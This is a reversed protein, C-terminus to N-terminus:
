CICTLVNLLFYSVSNVLLYAIFFSAIEFKELENKYLYFIIWQISANILSGMIVEFYTIVGLEGRKLATVLPGHYYPSTDEGFLITEREQGEGGM